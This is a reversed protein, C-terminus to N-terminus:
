KPEFSYCARRFKLFAHSHYPCTGWNSQSSIFREESIFFKCDGCTHQKDDVKHDCAEKFTAFQPYDMRNEKGARLVETGDRSHPPLRVGFLCERIHQPLYMMTIVFVYVPLKGIPESHQGM